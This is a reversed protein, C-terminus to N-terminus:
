EDLVCASWISIANMVKHKHEDVNVRWMEILM